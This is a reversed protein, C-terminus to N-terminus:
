ATPPRGPTRLRLTHLMGDCQAIVQAIAELREDQNGLKFKMEICLIVTAGFTKFYEICGGTSIRGTIVPENRM